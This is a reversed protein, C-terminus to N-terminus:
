EDEDEDEPEDKWQERLWDIVPDLLDRALGRLEESDGIVGAAAPGFTYYAEVLLEGLVTQRLTSDRFERLLQVDNAMLSGYAATAVFCADVEGTERAATTARIVTLPGYNHCGDYARIGIYYNTQPLLGDVTIELLEGAGSPQVTGAVSSSDLFNTDTMETGARYRIEYGTVVGLDVDDGPEFFSVTASDSTTEIVGNDEPAGPAIDDYELRADVRMQYMDGNSITTLLRLAGSGPVDDDITGDPPRIDGDQGDPDGYGEYSTAFGLSAEPGIQFDARYVVSPQGRYPIGYDGYLIGVPEPYTTENYTGNMDLEKSVEVWVVYDGIPLADPIPWSLDFRVGGVPTAQTVADFPNIEDFMQSTAHDIIPDFEVDARPPYLQPESDWAKGKDTFAVSACTQTDWGAEGERFPRCYYGEVSSQAPSHSLASENSHSGDDNQFIVMPWSQGHRHAWVPFTTIRRGYPWAWATNFDFRGPRNGLGRRGVQDTIYLTDVFTGDAEELWVVIQLGDTPTFDIDVVRCMGEEGGAAASRPVLALAALALVSRIRMQGM